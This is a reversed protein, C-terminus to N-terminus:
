KAFPMLRESVTDGLKCTMGDFQRTFQDFFSVVLYENEATVTRQGFGDVTDHACVKLRLLARFYLHSEHRPSCTVVPSPEPIQVFFVFLAEFAEELAFSMRNIYAADGIPAIIDFMVAIKDIGYTEAHVRKTALFGFGEFVIDATVVDVIDESEDARDNLMLGLMHNERHVAFLRHIVEKERHIYTVSWEGASSDFLVGVCVRLVAHEVTHKDAFRGESLHAFGQRVEKVAFQGFQREDIGEDAFLDFDRVAFMDHELRVSDKFVDDTGAADGAEM